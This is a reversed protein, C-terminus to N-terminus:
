RWFIRALDQESGSGQAGLVRGGDVTRKDRDADHSLRSRLTPINGASTGATVSLPLM